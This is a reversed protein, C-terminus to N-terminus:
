RLRDALRRAVDDMVRRAVPSTGAANAFGHILGTAHVVDVPVGADRLRAAYAAGEDRLVDFGATVVIAPPLGRVDPALLPSARPDRAAAEDPLYHARYWDMEAATLFFGEAFRRYSDHKTSLDTM